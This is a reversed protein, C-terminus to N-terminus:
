NQLAWFCLHCLKDLICSEETNLPDFGLFTFCNKTEVSRVQPIVELLVQPQRYSDAWKFWPKISWQKSYNKWYIMFLINKKDKIM